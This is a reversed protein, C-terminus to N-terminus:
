SCKQWEEEESPPFQECDTNRCLTIINDMLQTTSYTTIM